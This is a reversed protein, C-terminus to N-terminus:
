LKLCLQPKGDTVNIRYNLGLPPKSSSCVPPDSNKFRGNGDSGQINAEWQNGAAYITRNASLGTNDVWIGHATSGKFANTGADITDSQGLDIELFDGRAYVAAQNNLFQSSRVKLKNGNGDSAIGYISNPGFKVGTIVASVAVSMYLGYGTNKEELNSITLDAYYGKISSYAPGTISGGQVVLRPRISGDKQGTVIISSHHPGEFVCDKVLMKSNSSHWIGIQQGGLGLSQFHLGVLSVDGTGAVATATATATGFGKFTLYQVSAAGLFEFADQSSGGQLIVGNSNAKITVGNPVSYNFTEGSAADYIGALLNIVQGSTVVTLAKKITKFPKDITGPNSDSGTTSSVNLQTITEVPPSSPTSCATLVAALTIAAFLAFITKM